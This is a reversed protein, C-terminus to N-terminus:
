VESLRFSTFDPVPQDSFSLEDDPLLLHPTDHSTVRTRPHLTDASNHNQSLALHRSRKLRKGTSIATAWYDQLELRARRLVQEANARNLREKCAARILRHQTLTLGSAYEQDKASACIWSGDKPHQVFITGLDYPDFKYKTKFNISINARLRRLDESAYQLWHSVVGSQDVTGSATIGAIIDLNAYSEVFKPAPCSDLGELFLDVPRALKRENITFPHV